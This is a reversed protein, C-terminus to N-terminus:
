NKSEITQKHWDIIKIAPHGAVKECDKIDVVVGSKAAIQVMHGIEIHGNLGAQGGIMVYDGM